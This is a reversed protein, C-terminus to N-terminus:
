QSGREAHHRLGAAPHRRGLARQFTDQVLTTECRSRMAWGVVKRAYLDLLTSVYWWGEATWGDSIDGGWVPDPQAGDCQRARLNPAVADGHRSDTTVPGRRKPRQVGGGARHMLRRAQARGVACGEDQLHKAMRRRGYRSRPDDAMAKVRAGWASETVAIGSTTQRHLSPSFGSRSV